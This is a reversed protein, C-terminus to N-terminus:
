QHEICGVTRTTANKKAKKGFERVWPLGSSMIIAIKVTIPPILIQVDGVCLSVEKLKELGVEGRGGESFFSVIVYFGLM